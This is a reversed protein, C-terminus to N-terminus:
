WRAPGDTRSDIHIFGEDEYYGIGLRTVYSGVLYRHIDYLSGSSFCCDMARGKVHQSSDESGVSRNYELCRCGSNIIVTTNFKTCVDQVVEVVEYDITDFGCGCKCAIEARSINRTLDGM